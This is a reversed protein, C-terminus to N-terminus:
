KVGIIDCACDLNWNIHTENNETGKFHNIVVAYLPTKKKLLPAYILIMEREM